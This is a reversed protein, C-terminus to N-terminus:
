FIVKLVQFYNFKNDAHTIVQLLYCKVLYLTILYFHLVRTYTTNMFHKDLKDSIGLFCLGYCIKKRQEIFFLVLILSLLTRDLPYRIM